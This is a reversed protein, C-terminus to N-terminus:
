ELAVRDGVRITGPALVQAYVGFQLQAEQGLCRLVRPDSPLDDQALTTMRCRETPADVQLRVDGIRLVRGLWSQEDEETELVLNPRFRREDLRSAPLRSRLWALARTGLLHVPSGDFHSVGHERALTVSVGLADSLAPELRPDDARLRSGDPFEVEPVGDLCRARLSFLGDIRRFRRTDKGSGLKGDADTLAYLRDGRVGRPELELEDCREGLLSKVPYRWLTSVTGLMASRYVRRRRLFFGGPM